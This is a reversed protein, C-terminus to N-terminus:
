PGSVLVVAVSVIGVLVGTGTRIAIEPKRPDTLTWVYGILLGAALGGLHAQWGIGPVFFPLVLNIGLLVLMSKLQAAGAPTNRIRLSFAIWAGFLGFIAGSAGLAPM